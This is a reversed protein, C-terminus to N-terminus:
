EKDYPAEQSPKFRSFLNSIILNFEEIKLWKSFIAFALIGGGGAILTQWLVGFFRRLDLLNYTIKLLIYTVIGTILTAIVAKGIFKFLAGFDITIFKKNLYYILYVASLLNGAALGLALGAVGYVRSFLYGLAVSAVMAILSAYMPLRTNKQAFFAKIILALAAEFVLAFAFAALTQGARSTDFINFKGSGLILRVIQNSLLYFLVSMPLMMYVIAKLARMFYNTFREKDELAIQASLTPFLVTALSTGFVVVPMTQINDAFTYVAISGAALASAITTFALMTLQNTGLGISRPIMLKAIRWLEKDHWFKQLRISFGVRILAPVQILFHLLAGAVVSWVVGMIGYRGSFFLTGTIIALNYFLPALSYAFFRRYSNLIGSSLYSFSFIIPTLSIIRAITITQTIRDASFKPVLLPILHPLLIYLVIAFFVTFSLGATFLRNAIERGRTEEQRAIKETFIPIFVSSIASLILVNFILDPIKFAAYYTDLDYTSIRAALFHDRLMGLINSLVLTVVLLITAGKISSEKGFAKNIFNM